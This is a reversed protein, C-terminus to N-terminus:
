GLLNSIATGAFKNHPFIVSFYNNFVNLFIRGPMSKVNLIAKIDIYIDFYKINLELNHAIIIPNVKVFIKRLDSVKKESPIDKESFVINLIAMM